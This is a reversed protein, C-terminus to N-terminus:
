RVEFSPEPADIRTAGAALAAATDKDYGHGPAPLVRDAVLLLAEYVGYEDVRLEAVVRGGERRCPPRDSCALVPRAEEGRYVRIEAVPHRGTVAEFRLTSGRQAETSRRLPGGDAVRMVLSPLAPARLFPGVWLWAACAAATACAGVSAWRWPSWTPRKRTRAPAPANALALRERERALAARLRQEWAAPVHEDEAQARLAQTLRTYSARAGLCEDCTSFHPDLPQEQELLLLGENEFRECSM